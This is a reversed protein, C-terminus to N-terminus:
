VYRPHGSDILVYFILTLERHFSLVIKDSSSEVSCWRAGLTMLVPISSRKPGQENYTRCDSVCACKIRIKIIREALFTISTM